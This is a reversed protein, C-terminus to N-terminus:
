ETRREWKPILRRLDHRRSNIYDRNVLNIMTSYAQDIEHCVDCCFHWEEHGIFKRVRHKDCMMRGCIYCIHEDDLKEIEKGCIDCSYVEKDIYERLITRM